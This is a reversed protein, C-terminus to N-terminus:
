IMWFERPMDHAHGPIKFGSRINRCAGNQGMSNLRIRKSRPLM